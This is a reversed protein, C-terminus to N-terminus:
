TQEAEMIAVTEGLPADDYYLNGAGDCTMLGPHNTRDELASIFYWYGRKKPWSYARVVIVSERGFDKFRLRYWGGEKLGAYKM